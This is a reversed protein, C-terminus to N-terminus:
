RAEDRREVPQRNKDLVKAMDASIVNAVDRIKSLETRVSRADMTSMNEPLRDFRFMDKPLNNRSCLVYSACYAVFANDSRKYDGKDLHAHALEQSLGRFLVPAELGGRVFIMMDQPRYVATIWEPM